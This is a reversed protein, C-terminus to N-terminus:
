TSGCAEMWNIRAIPRSIGSRGRTPTGQFRDRNGMDAVEDDFNPHPRDRGPQIGDASRIGAFHLAKRLVCQRIVM